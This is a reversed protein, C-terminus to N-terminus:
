PGCPGRPSEHCVGMRPAGDPHKLIMMHHYVYGHTNRHGYDDYGYVASRQAMADSSGVAIGVLLASFLIKKTM